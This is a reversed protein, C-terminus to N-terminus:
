GGFDSRSRRESARYLKSHKRVGYLSTSAQMTPPCSEVRQRKYVPSEDLQEESALSAEHLTDKPVEPNGEEDESSVTIAGQDEQIIPDVDM